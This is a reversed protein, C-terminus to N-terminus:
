VEKHVSLLNHTKEKIQKIAQSGRGATVQEAELKGGFMMIGQNIYTVMENKLFSSDIGKLDLLDAVSYVIAQEISNQIMIIDQASFYNKYNPSAISERFTTLGGYNHPEYREIKKNLQRKAIFENVRGILVVFLSLLPFGMLTLPVDSSSGSSTMFTLAFFSISLAILGIKITRLDDYLPLRDINYRTENIPPLVYFNCETFIERGVKSFRLFTTFLTSRIKDHYKLVLYTRWDNYINKHGEEILIKDDLNEEPGRVRDQLLLSSKEVENGDAFL